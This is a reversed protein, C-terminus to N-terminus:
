KVYTPIAYIVPKATAVTGTKADTTSYALSGAPESITWPVNGGNAAITGIMGGQFGQHNATAGTNTYKLPLLGPTAFATTSLAKVLNAPTVSAATKLTSLAEIFAVAYGAGYQENADLHTNANFGPFDAPDAALVKRLWVNWVNASDSTSPFEDLTVAGVEAVNAVSIPDAGVSSIVWHPSYGLSHAFQLVASTFAPITDLVVVTAGAAKDARIDAQIDATSQSFVDLPNYYCDGTYINTNNTVKIGAQQLGALGQPGFDGQGLFAVKATPWTKKIYAGFIKAESTYSTQFGFTNPQSTPKNFANDGSNVFLQPVNQAKLYSQVGTQASTGLSGVTAFLGGSTGLLSTTAQMTTKGATCTPDLGYLNYCDDVRLFNIKRGNVGGHTANVYKFVAAAAASVEGYSNAIGSLPVTAGITITKSTVGPVSAANAASGLVGASLASIPMAMTALIAVSRRLSKNKMNM